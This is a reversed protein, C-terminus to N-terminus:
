EVCITPLADEMTTYYARVLSHNSKSVQYSFLTASKLNCQAYARNLRSINSAKISGIAWPEYISTCM